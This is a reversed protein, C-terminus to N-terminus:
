KTKDGLPVTDHSKSGRNKWWDFGGQNRILPNLGTRIHSRIRRSLRFYEFKLPKMLVASVIEATDIVGSFDVHYHFSFKNNNGFKLLTLSVAPIAIILLHLITATDNVGSFRNGHHWHYQQFLKWPTLSVASIEFRSQSDRDENLSFM